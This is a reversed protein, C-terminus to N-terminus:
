RPHRPNADRLNRYDSYLWIEERELRSEEELYEPTLNFGLPKAADATQAIFQDRHRRLVDDALRWAVFATQEAADAETYDNAM